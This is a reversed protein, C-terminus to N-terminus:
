IKVDASSDCRWASCDTSVPRREPHNRSNHASASRYQNAPRQHVCGTVLAFKPERVASHKGGPEDDGHNLEALVWEAGSADRALDSLADNAHGSERTSRGTDASADPSDSHSSDPDFWAGSGQHHDADASRDDVDTGRNNATLRASSPDSGAKSACSGM